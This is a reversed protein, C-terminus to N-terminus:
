ALIYFLVVIKIFAYYFLVSWLSMSFPILLFASFGGLVVGEFVKIQQLAEEFCTSHKM